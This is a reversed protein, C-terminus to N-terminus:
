TSKMMKCIKGFNSATIRFYKEQFWKPNLIQGRTELEIKRKDVGDL